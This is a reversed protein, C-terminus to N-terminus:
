QGVLWGKCVLVNGPEQQGRCAQDRQDQHGSKTDGDEAKFLGREHGNTSTVCLTQADASERCQAKRGCM